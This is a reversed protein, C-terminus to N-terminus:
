LLRPSMAPAADKGEAQAVLPFAAVFASLVASATVGM